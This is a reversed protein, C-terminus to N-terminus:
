KQVKGYTQNQSHLTPELLTLLNYLIIISAYLFFLAGFIIEHFDTVLEM